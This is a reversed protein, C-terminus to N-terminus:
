ASGIPLILQFYIKEKLTDTEFRIESQAAHALKQSISLGLGAGSKQKAGNSRYFQTFLKEPDPIGAVDISNGVSIQLKQAFEADQIKSFRLEVLSDEPSYKLANSILNNLIIKTYEFDSSIVTHSDVDRYVVYIRKSEINDQNELSLSEILGSIEFHDLLASGMSNPDYREFDVCREVLTNMDNISEYITQIRKEVLPEFGVLKKLSELAVQITALPTKIEHSLMATFNKQIELRNSEIELQRASEEQVRNLNAKEIDQERSILSFTILYLAPSFFGRLLLGYQINARFPLLNLSTLLLISSIVLIILILLIVANSLTKKIPSSILLYGLYVEVSLSLLVIVYYSFEVVGIEKTLGYLIAMLLFFSGLIYSIKKVLAKPSLKELLSSILFTLAIGNVPAAFHSIFNSEEQSLNFFWRGYGFVMWTTFESIALNAILVTILKQPSRFYTAFLWILIPIKLSASAVLMGAERLQSIRDQEDTLIDALLVTLGKNKVRLYVVEKTELFKLPISNERVDCGLTDVRWVSEQQRYLKIEDLPSPRIKLHLMETFRSKQEVEIRIWITGKPFGLTLSSVMPAFEANKVQDLSLNDTTDIFYSKTVVPAETSRIRQDTEDDSFYANTPYIKEAEAALTPLFFMWSIFVFM